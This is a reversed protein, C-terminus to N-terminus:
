SATATVTYAATNGDIDTVTLTFTYTCGAVAKITFNNNDIKTIVSGAPGTATCEVDWTYAACHQDFGYHLNVSNTKGAKLNTQTVNFNNASPPTKATVNVTRTVTATNGHSDTATYTVNYTGAQSPVTGSITVAVTGDCADVATAGPETYGKQCDVSMPNSGKLTIV